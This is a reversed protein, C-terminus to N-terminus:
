ITQIQPAVTRQGSPTPSRPVRNIRYATGVEAEAAIVAQRKREERRAYAVAALSGMLIHFTMLIGPQRFIWETISQGFAGCVAFFLGVGITRMPDDRRGFLFPLGMWFWSGWMFLFILLGPIGLEGLTLAALNHAPAALYADGYVRGINTTGYVANLYDYDEFNYGLQPGYTRSVHYSWNNLGVGFFHDSVINKALRLYVGRGDVSEDLYEEHLSATGYRQMIQGSLAIIVLCLAAGMAARTIIMRFSFKWSACLVFTALGVAAFVPIGARSVTLLLGVAAFAASIGAFWRLWTSWGAYAVAILVPACMCFYMSLSNPHDLTGAVRDLHTIFKQKVAWLGEFTVACGLALILVTWERKTRVYAAAALFVLISGLIKSLEFAGFLKPESTIVSVASYFLYVLMVGLSGPWFWRPRREAEMRGFLCGVLLAFAFIHMLSFQLGRTTGRYWAESFFNVDLRETFLAFTIILFFFVDRVTRSWIALLSSSIGVVPILFLAIVHELKM